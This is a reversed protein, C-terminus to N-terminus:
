QEFRHNFGTLTECGDQTVLLLHELRIGYEKKYVAPEPAIVMGPQLIMTNNPVVRPEEHYVTGVGHGGHHAFGREAELHKRMVFDVEKAQVGPRVTKIGIQL